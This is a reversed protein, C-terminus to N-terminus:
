NMVIGWTKLMINFERWGRAGAQGAARGVRMDGRRDVSRAYACAKAKGSSGKGKRLM